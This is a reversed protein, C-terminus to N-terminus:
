RRQFEPSAFLLALGQAPSEARQIAQRADASLLPGLASDGVDMPDIDARAMRQGFAQAFEIRKWVLDSSLWAEQSDAWGNPGPAAYIRQGMSEVAGMSANAPAERVGMARLASILYEEPRKFKPAPAAWAEPSDVVASMTVRLDGDSDRFAKAVRAVAAQPPADAIYHRALKTAIFTATSPHRAIDALAAEGQGVGEGRYTKNLLTKPGPEHAQPEFAFLAAAPRRAANEDFLLRLPPREYRWGTIITALAIVDAQSYGGNVGLTHLELIERALNENLGTPRGVGPIRPATRPRRAWASNPGISIQNDLYTLMGPHQTSALLMDAFRGAVRPRVVEREFSPPMAVAVPKMASVTFHNAWFHVLRERVPADTAVAANIRATVARDARQRFTRAYDEELTLTKIQDPSLDEAESLREMAQPRVAGDPGRLRRQVLWRAFAMVDDEGPPLAAIAAPPVAEPVLQSKVWGRPDGAIRKLDGPRAGFGFRNAAIAADKLSM